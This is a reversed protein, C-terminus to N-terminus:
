VLLDGSAMSASYPSNPAYPSEESFQGKEGLSGYVEDTSVQLYRFARQVSPPLQLWHAHACRLLQFTGMVNTEIFAAPGTISRDVHSEAAFNLLAIPQFEQLLKGVLPGDCIDGRVLEWNKRYSPPIFELNEPHGAYTLSDLVIARYGKEVALGVFTSGIFGAGGTILLTKSNM